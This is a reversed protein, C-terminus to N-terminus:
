GAGTRSPASIDLMNLLEEAARAAGNEPVYAQAREAMTKRVDDRKMREAKERIEAIEVNELALCAGAEAAAKVRSHQDDAIKEQAHLIAPVGAYMLECVTNYGGSAVAFDIAPFVDIAPVYTLWTIRPGHFQRGRYLPGPGLVLHLAEDGRLAELVTSFFSEVGADGGGGGTVYVLMRDPPLHFAGLISHRDPLETRDRMIIDGAWVVREICEPPHLIKVSGARHPVIIRDYLRMPGQVHGLRAFEERMARYVLAKRGITDLIPVLEHLSGDPFTDVVLLDPDLTSLFNLAVSRIVRVYDGKNLGSERVANKSPVKLAAFGEHWALL